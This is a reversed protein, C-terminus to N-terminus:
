AMAVIMTTGREFFEVRTVYVRTPLFFICLLIKIPLRMSALKIQINRPADIINEVIRLFTDRFFRDGSKSHTSHSLSHPPHPM